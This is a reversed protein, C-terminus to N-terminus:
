RWNEKVFQDDVEHPKPRGHFSVVRCDATIGTKHLNHLKYSRVWSEPYLDHKIGDRKIITMEALRLPRDEPKGIPDWQPMGAAVYADWVKSRSGCKLLFVTTNLDQECGGHCDAVPYDKMGAFDSPYLILEDLCGTVVVDLDVYLLKRTEIGPPEPMFIKLKGWWAIMGTYVIRIKPNIEGLRKEVEPGGYLVFEFPITTNREVSNYLINLYKAPYYDRGDWCTLITIM